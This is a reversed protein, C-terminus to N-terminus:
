LGSGQLLKARAQMLEHWDFHNVSIRDHRNKPQPNFIVQSGKALPKWEEYNRQSGGYIALVPTNTASAMHVVSTDPTFCYDAFTLLALTNNISCPTDIYILREPHRCRQKLSRLFDNKEPVPILLLHDEGNEETWRNVLRLAQEFSFCRNKGSGFFNMAVLYGKSKKTQEIITQFQKTEKAYNPLPFKYAFNPTDIFLKAVAHYRQFFNVYKQEIHVNFINYRQKEYGVYYSANLSHLALLEKESFGNSIDIVVDFMGAYQRYSRATQMSRRPSQIINIHSVENLWAASANGTIVSLKLDPRYQSLCDILASCMVADGLKNDWRLLCVSRVDKFALKSNPKKDWLLSFLNLKIEKKSNRIFRWILKVTRIM